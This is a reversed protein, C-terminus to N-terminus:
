LSDAYSAPSSPAHMYQFTHWHESEVEYLTEMQKASFYYDDDKNRKWWGRDAGVSPDEPTLSKGKTVAKSLADQTAPAAMLLSM